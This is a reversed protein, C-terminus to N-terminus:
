ARQGARWHEVTAALDDNSAQLEAGCLAAPSDWLVRADNLAGHNYAVQIGDVPEARGAPAGAVPQRTGGLSRSLYVEREAALGAAGTKCWFTASYPADQCKVLEADPEIEAIPFAGPRPVVCENPDFLYRSFEYLAASAFPAPVVPRASAPSGTDAQTGAREGAETGGTGVKSDGGGRSGGAAEARPQTSGPGADVIDPLLTVAAAGLVAVLVAAGIGGALVRTPRRSLLYAVGRAPPVWGALAFRRGAAGDRSREAVSEAAGREAVVRESDRLQGLRERAQAATPRAAPDKSLLRLLLPALPGARRPAPPDDQLVAHMTALQGGREFPSRGEVAAYLTAGVSWVDAAPGAPQGRVWEPAAYPATRAGLPRGSPAPVPDGVQAAIGFDTLVAGRYTLMVNTPKVDRHLVEAAHAVRLADLLAMGIAATQAVSLPGSERLVEDLSLAEFWEMVIWSTSGEAVVDYVTAAFATDLRAATHAGRMIRQQVRRCEDEGLHAPPTVEKIAVARGLLGDEATWVVGLEGRGIRDLLRYRGDVVRDPPKPDVACIYLAGRLWAWAGPGAVAGFLM